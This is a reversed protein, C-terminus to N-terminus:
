SAFEAVDASACSDYATYATLSFWSVSGGRDLYGVWILVRGIRCLHGIAPNKEM